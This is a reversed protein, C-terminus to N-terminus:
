EDLHRAFFGLHNAVPRQRIPLKTHIPANLVQPDSRNAIVLTTSGGGDLHLATDVDLEMVIEALEALTVGESYLPQKGDIVILWLKQGVRDIAVAVQSYPKDNKLSDLSMVVPAGREVLISNGAVAQVTSEPCEGSKLVQARNNADFCLVPWNSEAKSYIFGQSIAQGLVNVRESSRPYFDWPSYERFPFFYNANIALQLKFERVFESTTRAHIERDDPTPRGPTVLVGIGPTTLDITVIHLMFPRPTSRAERKYVIGQFLTLEQNTRPPRLFHLRSYLLLPLILLVIGVAVLSRKIYIQKRHNVDAAANRM